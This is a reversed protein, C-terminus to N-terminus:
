AGRRVGHLTDFGRITSIHPRGDYTSVPARINGECSRTSEEPASSEGVTIGSHMEGRDLLVRVENLSVYGSDLADQASNKRLL